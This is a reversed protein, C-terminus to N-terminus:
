ENSSLEKTNFKILIKSKKASIEIELKKDKERREINFKIWIGPLIILM